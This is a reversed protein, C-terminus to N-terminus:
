DGQNVVMINEIQLTKNMFLENCCETFVLIEYRESKEFVLVQNHDLRITMTNDQVICNDFVTTILMRDSSTFAGRILVKKIGMIMNNRSNPVMHKQMLSRSKEDKMQQFGLQMPIGEFFPLYSNQWPMTHTFVNFLWKFKLYEPATIQIHKKQLTDYLKNIDDTDLFLCLAGRHGTNYLNVWDKKWGGGSLTLLRVMEFYENGIWLNSAKFGRTGKGSHPEYPFGATKIQLTTDVDGQYKDHVNIVFHDLKLM